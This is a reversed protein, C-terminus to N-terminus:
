HEPLKLDEDVKSYYTDVTKDDIPDLRSPEWKLNIDKGVLQSM